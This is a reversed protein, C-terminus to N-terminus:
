RGSLTSKLTDAKGDSVNTRLINEATLSQGYYARNWDEEPVIVTGDLSAGGFLGKANSFAVIDADMNTTTSGEVGAGVTAVAISVDGGLSVKDSLLKQLGRETRVVLVTESVQVGAQLGIGGKAIDYFVPGRWGGSDRAMLVGVGGEGGIIFGAKVLSPAILVARAGKLQAEFDKGQPSNRIAEVTAAAKSVTEQQDNAYAPAVIALPAMAAMAAVTLALPRRDNLRMRFM